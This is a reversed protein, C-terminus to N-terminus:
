IRLKFRFPISQPPNGNVHKEHSEHYYKLSPDVKLSSVGFIYHIVEGWLPLDGWRRKYIMDSKEVENKYIQFVRQNRIPNLSLGFVNTYPGSPQRGQVSKKAYRKVFDLTFANLGKTVFNYESETKGCVFIHHDLQSFVQDINFDVFCDEDIRLMKDYKEVAQFFYVFWFACMHRYGLKFDLAEEMPVKEKEPQFAFTSVDVFQLALEPSHKEIYLQHEASINGEHFILIDMSKDNLHQSIHRNRKILNAYLTPDTYGRTLVAVCNM